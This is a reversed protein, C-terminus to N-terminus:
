KVTSVLMIFQFCVNIFDTERLVAESMIKTHENAQLNM